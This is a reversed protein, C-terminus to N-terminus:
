GSTPRDVVWRSDYDRLMFLTVCAALMPIAAFFLINAEAYPNLFQKYSSVTSIGHMLMVLGYSWTKQFGILFAIVLSLQLAGLVYAMGNSLGSIFYFKAFVAAAHEPNIFKDLVWVLLVVFVSLRCLFLATPLRNALKTDM